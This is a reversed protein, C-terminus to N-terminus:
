NSVGCLFIRMTTSDWSFSLSPVHEWEQMGLASNRGAEKEKHTREQQRRREKDKGVKATEEKREIVLSHNLDPVWEWISRNNQKCFAGDWGEREGGRAAGSVSTAVEERTRLRRLFLHNSPLIHRKICKFSCFGM